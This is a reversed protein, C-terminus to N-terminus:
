RSSKTTTTILYDMVLKINSTNELVFRAIAYSDRLRQLQKYHKNIDVKANNFLKNVDRSCLSDCNNIFMPSDYNIVYDRLNNISFHRENRDVHINPYTPEKRLWGGKDYILNMYGTSQM